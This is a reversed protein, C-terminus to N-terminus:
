EFKNTRENFEMIKPKKPDFANESFLLISEVTAIDFQMFDENKNIRFVNFFSKWNQEKMATEVSVPKIDNKQAHYLKSIKVFESKIFDAVDLVLMQYYQRTLEEPDDDTNDEKIFAALRKLEVDINSKNNRFGNCFTEIFNNNHKEFYCFNYLGNRGLPGWIVDLNEFDKNVFYSFLKHVVLEHSNYKIKLFMAKAIKQNKTLKEDDTENNYLNYLESALDYNDIKMTNNANTNTNKNSKKTSQYLKFRDFFGDNENSQSILNNTKSFRDFGGIIDYDLVSYLLNIIEKGTEENIPCWYCDVYKEPNKLRDIVRPLAKVVFDRKKHSMTKMLSFTMKIMKVSFQSFWIEIWYEMNAYSLNYKYWSFPIEFDSNIDEGIRIVSNNIDSFTLTFNYKECQVVHKIIIDIDNEIRAIENRVFIDLGISTFIPHTLDYKKEENMALFTDVDTHPPNNLSKSMAIRFRNFIDQVMAYNPERNFEHPQCSEVHLVENLFKASRIYKYNEKLVPLIEEFTSYMGFADLIKHVFKSTTLDKDEYFYVKKLAAFTSVLQKEYMEACSNFINTNIGVSEYNSNHFPLFNKYKEFVQSCTNFSSGFLCSTPSITNNKLLKNFGVHDSPEAGLSVLLLYTEYIQNPVINEDINHILDRFKYTFEDFRVVNSKIIANNRLELFQKYIKYLDSFDDTSSNIHNKILVRLNDIFDNLSTINEQLKGHTKFQQYIERIEDRSPNKACRQILDRYKDVYEHESSFMRGFTCGVLCDMIKYYYASSYSTQNILCNVRMLIEKKKTVNHVFNNIIEHCGTAVLYTAAFFGSANSNSFLNIDSTLFNIFENKFIHPDHGYVEYLKRLAISMESREKRGIPYPQAILKWEENTVPNKTKLVFQDEDTVNKFESTNLNVHDGWLYKQGYIDETICDKDSCKNTDSKLSSPNHFVPPRKSTNNNNYKPPEKHHNNQPFSALAAVVANEQYVSTHQSFTRSSDTKKKAAAIAAISAYSCM